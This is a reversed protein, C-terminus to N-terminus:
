LVDVDDSQIWGRNSKGIEIKVWGKLRELVRAETGAHLKFVEPYTTGYGSRVSAEDAIVVATPRTKQEYVHAAVATLLAVGILAAAIAAGRLTRAPYFAHMSLSLFLIVSIGELAWLVEDLSLYYYPFLFSRVAAPAEPPMLADETQHRAMELNALLDGDRPILTRARLYAAVAKGLQAQRYYANGANYYVGGAQYGLALAKEFLRAAVAYNTAAYAATADDMAKQAERGAACAASPAILAACAAFLVVSTKWSINM